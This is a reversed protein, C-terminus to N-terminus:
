ARAFDEEMRRCLEAFADKLERQAADGPLASPGRGKEFDAPTQGSAELRSALERVRKV